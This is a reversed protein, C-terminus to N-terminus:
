KKYDEYGTSYAWKKSQLRLEPDNARLRLYLIIFNAHVHGLGIEKSKLCALMESHKSVVKGRKVYGKKNALKWFYEATKRTKIQINDMYAKFTPRAMTVIV